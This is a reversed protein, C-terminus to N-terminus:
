PSWAPRQETAATLTLQCANTGERDMVWLDWQGGVAPASVYAIRKGNPSIAPQEFTRTGTGGSPVAAANSGDDSMVYIRYTQGGPDARNSSFAIYNYLVDSLDLRVVMGDPPSGFTADYDLYPPSGPDTPFDSSQSWGVAEVVEGSVGSAIGVGEVTDIESGGFCGSFRPTPRAPDIVAVYAQNGCSSGGLSDTYPFDPSDTQGGVIFRGASDVALAGAFDRESGGLYSGYDLLLGDSATPALRAFYADRGGQPGSQMAGPTTPLTALEPAASWGTISAMSNRVVLDTSIEGFDSSGPAIEGGDGGLFTAGASSAGNDTFRAVFFDSPGGSYTSQPVGTASAPFDASSTRGFVWFHNTVDDSAIRVDYYEDDQGPSGSGGLYSSFALRQNPAPHDPIIRAYFADHDGGGYSPQIANKIPFNSDSNTFGAILIEDRGAKNVIEVGQAAEDAMDTLISGRPVGDGGFYTAFNIKGGSARDEPDAGSVLRAVFADQRGRMTALGPLPPQGLPEGGQAAEIASIFDDSTTIGVIVISKEDPSIAVGLGLDAKTGGFMTTWRPVPTAVDQRTYKTVRVKMYTNSGTSYNSYGVVYISGESDNVTRLNVDWDGPNEYSSFIIEPDIVFPGDPEPGSLEIGINAGRRVFRAEPGGSGVIRPKSHIISGKALRNVLAGDGNIEDGAAGSSRLGFDRYDGASSILLDYEINGAESYKFAVDIGDYLGRYTISSFHEVDRIAGGSPSVGTYHSVGPVPDAFVVAAGSRSATFTYTTIHVNPAKLCLAGRYLCSGPGAERPRGAGEPPGSGEDGSDDITIVDFSTARFNIKVGRASAQALVGEDFQGHNPEIHGADDLGYDSLGDRPASM